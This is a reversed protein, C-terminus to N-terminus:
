DTSAFLIILEMEPNPIEGPVYAAFNRARQVAEWVGGSREVSFYQYRMKVPIARPPVPVHTLKLGPLAQRILQEIHTASCTKILSPARSILDADRMDSSVALYFRSNEFYKDQDIAAAYISDRLPKLPLAVFNGPVVTELLESILADLAIFCPGLRDHEYKSLDRPEIKRSFTTLAGALSLMQVFLNEPHVHDAELFHRLVPLHTNLTYLLWFNAIDSASFDALSQNRQRRTGVLQSCRAVMVEILGRLIGNLLENGRVNLMPPVFKTDLRYSGAETREIQAFPLLVSGEQNEGDALIQLNKRALSVPKETGTSNEDRLMQLDAYFRTSVGRQTGVNMGGPRDQPIALYFVCTKRGDQFCEDLSRARPQTDSSPMDLLLGDPFVGSAQSIALLGEGLSTGDLQLEIFGWYPNSLAEILFRLTEGFFRDQAQLHQPSLFVGKSWVVPQLQRM